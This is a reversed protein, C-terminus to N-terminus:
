GIDVPETVGVTGVVMAASRARRLIWLEQEQDQDQRPSLLTVKAKAAVVAREIGEIVTM